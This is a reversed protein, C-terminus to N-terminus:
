VGLYTYSECYDQTNESSQFIFESREFSQPRFHMVKTKNGNISLKWTTCWDSVVDLMRQFSNEDPAILAIDDAYLLLSLFFDYFPVGCNLSNIRDALDIMYVSFLTPVTYLGTECRGGRQIM